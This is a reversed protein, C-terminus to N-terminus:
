KVSEREKQIHPEYSKTDKGQSKALKQADSWNEVREGGVNPQLTAVPAERSMQKSIGALRENKKRMHASVRGNKSAWGDGSLNFRPMTVRRRTNGGECEPCDQPTDYDALKLQRDFHSDCDECLFAYIPM